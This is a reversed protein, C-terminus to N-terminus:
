LTKVTDKAGAVDVTTDCNQLLPVDATRPAKQIVLVQRQM